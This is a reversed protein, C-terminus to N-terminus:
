GWLVSTQWLVWIVEQCTKPNHFLIWLRCSESWEHCEPKVPHANRHPCYHHLSQPYALGPWMPCLCLGVPLTTLSFSQYAVLQVLLLWCFWQYQVAMTDDDAVRRALHDWYWQYGGSAVVGQPAKPIQVQLVIGPGNGVMAVVTQVQVRIQVPVWIQVLVQVQSRIRSPAHVPTEWDPTMAEKM